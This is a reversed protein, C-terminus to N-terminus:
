GKPQQYVLVTCPAHRVVKAAVSGIFFRKIDSMGRHGIFIMEYDKEEAQEIVQEYPVGTRVIVEYSVGTKEGRVNNIMEEYHAKVDVEKPTEFPSQTVPPAVYAKEVVHLFDLVEIGENLSYNFAYSILARSVDSSDIAVLAKRM